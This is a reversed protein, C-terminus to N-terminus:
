LKNQKQNERNQCVEHIDRFQTSMKYNNLSAVRMSPLISDSPKMQEHLFRKTSVLQEGGACRQARSHQHIRLACTLKCLFIM